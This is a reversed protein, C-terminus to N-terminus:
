SPIGSRNPANLSKRWARRASLRANRKVHYAQVGDRWEQCAVPVMALFALPCSYYYPHMSEDMPKYGWDTGSKQMLYCGIFRSGDALEHVTWLTNGSTFKRLTHRATLEQITAARSQNAYYWGM